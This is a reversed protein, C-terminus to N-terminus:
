RAEFHNLFEHFRNQDEVFTKSLGVFSLTFICDNKKFIMTEIRTPIGDVMGEAETALAERANYTRTESRLVRLDELASLMESQLSELPPDAPDNCTSLYSITNGNRKNQWASDADRASLEKFPAPPPEFKVDEARKTKKGGGVNVSVCACLPLLIAAWFSVRLFKLTNENDATFYEM